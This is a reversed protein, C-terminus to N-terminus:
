SGVGFIWLHLVGGGFGMIAGHAYLMWEDEKIAARMMEVFDRPPLEQTRTSVLVRIRDAQERSFDRDRFPTMTHEVGERAIAARIADYRRPGLAARVAPRAVGAAQDIAPELAVALMQRTRDGRPGNLLFEGINELTIVDDAIIDAYVEAAERQRRPFLGHVRVGWIRRPEPPEFILWMGLANTLWGVVVGLVPLLWAQHFTVDLVAVPIGLLFGFIAGFWVMLNLERQGFDRFIRVVLAPNERFHEIVMIKPDLLQDIHRGIETTISRVVGPLQERVRAVVARRGAPPLDRWLTPHEAVMVQDILDPLEPSFLEVIHEAIRDPELERYFEAPTGLKSIAKDVAISGMKAARAPIIGQWGLGGQMVGPVEQVKRPLVSSLERLGPVTVGHFRVPRFLMVLGTWNILWGVVATFVPISWFVLWDVEALWESSARM